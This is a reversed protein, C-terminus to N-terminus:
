ALRDLAKYMNPVSPIIQQKKPEQKRGRTLKEGIDALFFLGPWFFCFFPM